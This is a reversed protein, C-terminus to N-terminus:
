WWLILKFLPESLTVDHTDVSSEETILKSLKSIEVAVWNQPSIFCVCRPVKCIDFEGKEIRYMPILLIIRINEAFIPLIGGNDATGSSVCLSSHCKIFGLQSHSSDGEPRLNFVTDISGFCRNGHAGARRKLYFSSRINELSLPM